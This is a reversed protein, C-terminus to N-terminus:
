PVIGFENTLSEHALPSMSLLWGHGCGVLVLLSCGYTVMIPLTFQISEDNSEFNMSESSDSGLLQGALNM